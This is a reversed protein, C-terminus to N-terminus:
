PRWGVVVMRHDSADARDANAPFLGVPLLTSVHDPTTWFGDLLEFSGTKFYHYTWYAGSADAVPLPVLLARIGDLMPSSFPTNFDGLLLVSEDTRAASIRQQLLEGLAALEATRFAHSDPDAKDSTYRSKLHVHFARLRQGSFEFVAEQIGRQTAPANGEGMPDLLIVERPPIMSLIALGSRADPLSSFHTFPYDLGSAALDEQLEALMDASGIEQLFLVDPRVELLTNRLVAKEAEPKPYEFRYQGDQWRNQLLYNRVNWTALRLAEAPDACLPSLCALLLLLCLRKV